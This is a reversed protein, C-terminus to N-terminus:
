RGPYDLSTGHYTKMRWGERAVREELEPHMVPSEVVAFREFEGDPRPLSLVAPREEAEPTLETPAAALFAALATPEIEFARFRAPRIWAEASAPTRLELETLTLSSWVGDASRDDDAALLGSNSALVAVLVFLRPWTAGKHM